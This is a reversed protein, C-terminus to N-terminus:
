PHYAYPPQDKPNYGVPPLLLLTQLQNLDGASPSALLDYYYSGERLPFLKRVTAVCLGKPFVGDMGTTVLLDGPEILPIGKGQQHIPVGSRLDRAPGHEDAYDYNFGTGFLELSLSKGAAKYSGWLEGKALYLSAGSNKLREKLISLNEQFISQEEATAFLEERQSLTTAAQQLHHLLQRDQEKGRVVRVSPRLGSDTLLRVRCQNKGVYDVVGVLHPGVVAPSGKSAGQEKGVNLWLSHGWSNPDRHIVQAPLISSFEQRQQLELAQIQLQQQQTQTLKERLLLNDVELAAQRAQDSKFNQSRGGLLQPTAALTQHVRNLPSWVWQISSIAWAKACTTAHSSLSLSFFLLAVQFLYTQLPFRHAVM